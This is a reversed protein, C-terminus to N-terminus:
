MSEETVQDTAVEGALFVLNKPIFALLHAIVNMGFIDRLKHQGERLFRTTTLHVVETTTQFVRARNQFRKGQRLLYGSAFLDPRIRGAAPDPVVDTVVAIQRLYFGM